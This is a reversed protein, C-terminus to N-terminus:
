PGPEGALLGVGAAGDAVNGPTLACVTVLGTDPEVAIHAKYGDRYERVTKHMHRSEPDVTSVVRDPATPPRDAM